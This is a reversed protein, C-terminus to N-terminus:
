TCVNGDNCNPAAGGVCSGAACTDATTCANGDDCSAANNTYECVSAVCADDTCPNSDDCDPDTVCQASASNSVILFSTLIFITIFLKNIIKKNM